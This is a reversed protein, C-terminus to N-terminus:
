RARVSLRVRQMALICNRIRDFQATYGYCEAVVREFNLRDAQQYEHETSLIKRTLLPKFAALIKASDAASLKNPDLM